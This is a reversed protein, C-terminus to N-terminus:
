NILNSWSEIKSSFYFHDSEDGFGVFYMDETEIYLGEWIFSQEDSETVPIFAIKQFNKPKKEKPSFWIKTEM